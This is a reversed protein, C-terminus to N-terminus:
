FNALITDGIIGRWAILLDFAGPNELNKKDKSEKVVLHTTVYYKDFFEKCSEDQMAADMKRCWGCWSAHFIVFVNKHEEVAQEFAENLIDETTKVPEQATVVHLMSACLILIIISKRNM